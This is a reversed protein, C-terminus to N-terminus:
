AAGKLIKSNLLSESIQGIARPADGGPMSARDVTPGLAVTGDPPKQGIRYATLAPAPPETRAVPPKSRRKPNRAAGGTEGVSQHSTASISSREGQTVPSQGFPSSTSAAKQGFPSSTRTGRPYSSGRKQSAVSQFDAVIAAAKEDTIGQWEDTPARRGKEPVYTLRYKSAGRINGVITESRTVVLLGLAEGAAEAARIVKRSVGAAVFQDFSVFLNGNEKGAHRMHEIELRELINALPKPRLRWAPSVLLQLRHAIWGGDSDDLWSRRM